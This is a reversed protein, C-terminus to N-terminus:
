ALPFSLVALQVALFFIFRIIAQGMMMAEVELKILQLKSTM